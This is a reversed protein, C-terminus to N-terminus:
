FLLVYAEPFIMFQEIQGRFCSADHELSRYLWGLLKRLWRISAIVMDPQELAVALASWKKLMYNIM